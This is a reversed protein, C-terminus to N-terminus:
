PIDVEVKYTYTFGNSPDNSNSQTAGKIDAYVTTGPAVTAIQAFTSQATRRFVRQATAGTLANWSLDVRNNGPTGALTVTPAAAPAAPTVTAENSTITAM